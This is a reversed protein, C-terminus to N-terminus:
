QEDPLTLNLILLIITCAAISFSLSAAVNITKLHLPKMDGNKGKRSYKKQAESVISSSELEKLVKEVGDKISIDPKIDKIGPM